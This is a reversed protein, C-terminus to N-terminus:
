QKKGFLFERDEDDVNPDVPVNLRTRDLPNLGFKESLWKFDAMASKLLPAAPHKVWSGDTRGKGTYGEESLTERLFCIADYTFCLQSFSEYDLDTLMKAGVLIEGNTKWLRKGPTKLGKPMRWLKGIPKTNPTNKVFRGHGQLGKQDNDIEIHRAM